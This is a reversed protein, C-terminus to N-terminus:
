IGDAQLSNDQTAKYTHIDGVQVSPAGPSLSKQAQVWGMPSWQKPNLETWPCLSSFRSWIRGLYAYDGIPRLEARGACGLWQLLRDLLAASAGDRPTGLALSSPILRIRHPACLGCCLSSSSPSYPRKWGLGNWWERMTLGTCSREGQSM